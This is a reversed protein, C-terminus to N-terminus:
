VCGTLFTALLSFLFLLANVVQRRPAILSNVQTGTILQIIRLDVTSNAGMLSVGAVSPESHGLMKLLASALYRREGMRNIAAWDAALEKFREYSSSLYKGLRLFFLGTSM